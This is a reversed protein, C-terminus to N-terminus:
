CLSCAKILKKELSDSHGVPFSISIHLANGICNWPSCLVLTYIMEYPVMGVCQDKGMEWCYRFTKHGGIIPLKLTSWIFIM